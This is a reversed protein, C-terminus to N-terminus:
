EAFERLVPVNNVEDWLYKKDIERTFKLRHTCKYKEVFKRKIHHKLQRIFESPTANPIRYFVEMKDLKCENCRIRLVHIQKM